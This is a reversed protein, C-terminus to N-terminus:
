WPSQAESGADFDGADIAVFPRDTNATESAPQRARHKNEDVAAGHVGGEERASTPLHLVGIHIVDITDLDDTSGAAGDPPRVGNIANDIDDRAFRFFCGSRKSGHAGSILLLAEEV